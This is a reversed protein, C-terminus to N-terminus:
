ARGGLDPFRSLACRRRPQAHTIEVGVAAIPLGNTAPARWDVSCAAGPALTQQPGRVIGLTDDAQYVAVYISAQVPNPNDADARLAAHITQGSYLTPSAHLAYGRKIFYDAVARAPVFTPTSVRAPRGPTVGQYRIALCGADDPGRTQAVTAV